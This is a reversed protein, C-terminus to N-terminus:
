RSDEGISRIGRAVALAPVLGVLILLLAPLAAAGYAGVSTARWLETALTDVGIPRLLLTAPLEKMVAAWVLVGGALVGPAALPLTVRAFVRPPPDGLSLAADELDPRVAAVASRASGVAKPLFLVVYAAILATPGQYAGPAVAVTLSVLALAVVLGPIAHGVSTIAELVAVFRGRRRAALWAIPLAAVVTVGAATVGLALTTATAVALDDVGSVYRDARPLRAALAAPPVVVSAVTVTALAATVAATAFPGLHRRAADVVRGRAHRPSRRRLAGEAVVCAVALGALVLAMAASLSRDFGGAFQAYIGTTLTDVRLLAPAGFDSLAYLAVLLTGALAAPLVQPLTATVFAAGPSRGLSVAADAVAQDARVFAAMTPVTVYPATSLVLVGVLPGIGSLGPVLGMWGFAAVFSPVALPLCAAVRWVGGWPLAVRTLTWATAVGLLFAGASTALTVVISTSLLELTRPRLLVPALRAPDATM